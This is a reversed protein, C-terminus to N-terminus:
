VSTFHLFHNDLNSQSCENITIPNQLVLNHDGGCITLNDVIACTITGCWSCLLLFLLSICCQHLPNDHHELSWKVNPFNHHVQHPNHAYGSANNCRMFDQCSARPFIIKDPPLLRYHSPSQVKLHLTAQAHSEHCCCLGDDNNCYTQCSTDILMLYLFICVERELYNTSGCCQQSPM